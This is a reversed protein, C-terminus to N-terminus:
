AAASEPVYSVGSDFAAQNAYFQLSAPDFNGVGQLQITLVDPETGNLSPHAITITCSNGGADPTVTIDASALQDPAIILALHDSEASFDTVQYTADWYSDSAEVEFGLTDSGRGLAIQGPQVAFGAQLIAVSDDGSGADIRADDGYLVMSDNGSGADIEIHGHAPYLNTFTDDGSGGFATASRTEGDVSLSFVDNGAGGSLTEFGTLQDAGSGGFLNSGNLNDDGAGGFLNSAGSVLDNGDGGYSGLDSHTLLVDDGSGGYMMTQDLATLSGTLRDNGDDGFLTAEGSANHLDDDGLGGYAVGADGATDARTELDDNGADGLLTSQGSGYLDDEGDGGHGTASGSIHLDDNGSDGFVDASDTGTLIDGQAGGYLTAHDSGTLDDRGVGGYAVSEDEATLTDNGQNGHGEATGSLHLTDNGGWGNLIGDDGSLSDDGSTGRVPEPAADDDKDDGGDFVGSLALLGGTLLLSGLILLDM